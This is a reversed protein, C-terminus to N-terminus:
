IDKPEPIDKIIIEILRLDFYIALSILITM